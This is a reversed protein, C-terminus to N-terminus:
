QQKPFFRATDKKFEVKIKKFEAKQSLTVLLHLYPTVLAYLHNLLIDQSIRQELNELAHLVQEEFRIAQHINEMETAEMKIQLIGRTKLLVTMFNSLLNYADLLREQDLIDTALSHKKKLLHLYYHFLDKKYSTELAKHPHRNLFDLIDVPAHGLRALEWDVFVPTGDANLLINNPNLDGHLFGIRIRNLLPVIEQVLREIEQMETTNYLERGYPDEQITKFIFPLQYWQTSQTSHFNLFNLRRNGEIHISVLAELIKQYTHLQHTLSEQAVTEALTSSSVDEMVALKREYDLLYLKPVHNLHVKNFVELIKGELSISNVPQHHRNIVQSEYVKLILTDSGKQESGQYRLKCRYLQNRAGVSVPSLNTHVISLAPDNYKKSLIRGLEQQTLLM